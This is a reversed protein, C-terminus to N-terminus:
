IFTVRPLASKAASAITVGSNAKAKAEDITAEYAIAGVADGDTVDIDRILIGKVASTNAPYPTGAKAIKKGESDASVSSSAITYPIAQFEASALIETNGAVTKNIMKMAM